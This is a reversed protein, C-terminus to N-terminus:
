QFGAIPGPPDQVRTNQFADILWHHGGLVLVATALTVIEGTLPGSPVHLHARVHAIAAHEGLARVEEVTFVNRSGKYITDFITQHIKEIEDRGTVHMGFINVFDADPAFERAFAAADAENWATTLAAAVAEAGARIKTPDSM